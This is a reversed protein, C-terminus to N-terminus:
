PKVPLGSSSKVAKDEHPLTQTRVGLSLEVKPLQTRSAGSDLRCSCSSM